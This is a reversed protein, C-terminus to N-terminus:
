QPLGVNNAVSPHRVLRGAAILRGVTDDDIGQQARWEPGCWPKDYAAIRDLAAKDEESIEITDPEPERTPEVIEPDAAPEAAEPEPASAAIEFETPEPECTRDVIEAEAVPDAAEPEPTSTSNEPESPQRESTSEVEIPLQQVWKVFWARDTEDFYPWLKLVHEQLTAISTPLQEEPSARTLGLPECPSVNAAVRERCARMGIRAKEREEALAAKPDSASGIALLRRIERGSFARGDRRSIKRCFCGWPDIAPAGTTEDIIEEGADIRSRASVLLQAASLRQDESNELLAGIKGAVVDLPEDRSYPGSCSATPTGDGAPGKTPSAGLTAPTPASCLQNGLRPTRGAIPQDWLPQPPIWRAARSREAHRANM